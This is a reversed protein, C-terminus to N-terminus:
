NKSFYKEWESKVEQYSAACLDAAAEKFPKTNTTFQRVLQSNGIPPMMTDTKLVQYRLGQIRSNIARFYKNATIEQASKVFNYPTEVKVGQTYPSSGNATEMFTRAFDDSAMMRLVLAAIDKKTSGKAIYAIHEIGRSFCIGRATAIVQIDADDLSLGSFESAVAAKIDAISKNEDVLKCILSLVDDCTADDLAYKTGAGFQKVGLASIVPVNMFSIDNLNNYNEKVENLFWDGNLMFVANNYGQTQQMILSQISDLPQSESGPAKYKPQMFEYAVAYAEELDSNNFVEYGNEMDKWSGDANQTQMRLFQNYTDIDFQAFWTDVACNQYTAADKLCYTVPYTKSEATGAVGNAGNYIANFVEFMENTTRPLETIGYKALKAINVVMGASTQAWTFGYTKGNDAVMYPMIDSSIRESIKNESYSGDYNIAPQDFVLSKIEEVLEREYIGNESVHNPMIAGTIYLDIGNKDFGDYLDALTTAGQNSYESSAINMKYGESAFAQNFKEELVTAFEDGFGAKYLKVNVTKSDKSVNEQAQCGTGISLCGFAATMALVMSILKKMRRKRWVKKKSQNFHYKLRNLGLFIM